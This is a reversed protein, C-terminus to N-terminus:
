DSHRWLFGVLGLEELCETRQKANKSKLGDLLHSFMKSAPYVKCITKLIVRIDRRVNDKPDGIQLFNLCIIMTLFYSCNCLHAFACVKNVLYPIFATAELDHMHYDQQALMRFVLQLYELAKLLVSTNTEFFRLTTWKLILDMNSM